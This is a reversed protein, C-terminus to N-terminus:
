IRYGTFTFVKSQSAISVRYDTFRSNPILGTCEDADAESTLRSSSLCKSSHEAGARRKTDSHIPVFKGALPILVFIRELITCGCRIRFRQQCNLILFNFALFFNAASFACYRKDFATNVKQVTSNPIM